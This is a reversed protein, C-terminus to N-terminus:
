LRRESTFASASFRRDCEGHTTTPPPQACRDRKARKYLAPLADMRLGHCVASLSVNSSITM